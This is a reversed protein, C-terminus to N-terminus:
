DHRNSIQSTVNAENQHSYNHSYIIIDDYRSSSWTSAGPESEEIERRSKATERNQQKKPFYTFNKKNKEM